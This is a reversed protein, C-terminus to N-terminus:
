AAGVGDDSTSRLPGSLRGDIWADLDSPSYLVRRGFKRFKPGGGVCALKRLTNPSLPVGKAKAYDAAGNRDLFASAEM